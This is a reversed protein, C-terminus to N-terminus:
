FFYHLKALHGAQSHGRPDGRARLVVHLRGRSALRHLFNERVLAHAREFCVRRVNDPAYCHWRLGHQVAVPENLRERLVAVDEFDSVNILLDSYIRLCCM